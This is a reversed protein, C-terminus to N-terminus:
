FKWYFSVADPHRREIIRAETEKAMQKLGKRLARRDGAQELRELEQRQEAIHALLDPNESAVVGCRRLVLEVHVGGEILKGAFRRTEGPDRYFVPGGVIPDYVGVPANKGDHARVLQPQATSANAPATARRELKPTSERKRSRARKVERGLLKAGMYLPRAQRPLMRSVMYDAALAGTRSM